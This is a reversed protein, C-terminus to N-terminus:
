FSSKSIVNEYKHGLNELSKIIEKEKEENETKINSLDFDKFEDLFEEVLKLGDKKETGDSKWLIRKKIRLDEEKQPTALEDVKRKALQKISQLIGIFKSKSSVESSKSIRTLTEIDEIKYLKKDAGSMLFFYVVLNEIKYKNEIDFPATNEFMVELQEKFTTLEHFEAIFDSEGYEPYLIMLPWVLDDQDLHVRQEGGLPHRFTPPNLTVKNEHDFIQIKRQLLISKLKKETKLISEEREKKIKNKLEAEKKKIDLSNKLNLISTNKKDINLGRVICDEAEDLKELILCAKACRFWGKINNPDIKLAIACDKLVSGFNELELNCAARNLLLSCYLENQNNEKNFTQALAKEYYIKAQKFNKEAYFENGQNKFNLAIELPDDDYILSNIAQLTDNDESDKPLTKMFLPTEDLEKMMQEVTKQRNPFSAM